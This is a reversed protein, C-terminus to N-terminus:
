DFHGFAPVEDVEGDIRVVRWVGGWFQGVFFGREGWIHRVCPHVNKVQWGHEKAFDVAAKKSTWMHVGKVISRNNVADFKVFQKITTDM